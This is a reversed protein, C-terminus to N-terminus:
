SSIKLFQGEFIDWKGYLWADRLKPPLAQLEAMYEPQMEMLAGNDTVLAQTFSYDEPKEGEEYMRDIFLRKFYAHSVGGPNCTYYTRKPFANAGRVTLNIKRIWEEKLQTAEDIFVIDYEAGQYQLEDADTSCYGFWLESGNIFRFVHDTKNYSAIGKLEGALFNIHNNLLERYGRRVILMKIGPYRLALLKAKTRM